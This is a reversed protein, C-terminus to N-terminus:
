TVDTRGGAGASTTALDGEENQKDKEGRGDKAEGGGGGRRVGATM